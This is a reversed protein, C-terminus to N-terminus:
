GLKRQAAEFEWPEPVGLALLSEILEQLEDKRYGLALAVHKLRQQGGRQIERDAFGSVLACHVIARKAYDSLRRGIDRYEPMAGPPTAALRELEAASVNEPLSNGTLNKLILSIAGREQESVRGDGCAVYAMAHLFLLLKEKGSPEAPGDLQQFVGIGFQLVGFAMAGWAVVYSGGGQAAQYTFLTVAGGALAILGGVLM